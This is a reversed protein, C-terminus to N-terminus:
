IRELIYQEIAQFSAKKVLLAQYKPLKSALLFYPVIKPINWTVVNFLLRRWKLRRSNSLLVRGNYGSKSIISKIQNLQELDSKESAIIITNIDKSGLALIIAASLSSDVNIDLIEAGVQDSIYPQICQLLEFPFVNEALPNKLNIGLVRNTLQSYERFVQDMKIQISATQISPHRLSEKGLIMSKNMVETLSVKDKFEYALTGKKASFFFYSIAQFTDHLELTRFFDRYSEQPFGYIFQTRLFINPNITKLHTIATMVEKVKYNRNMLRLSRNSFSQLPVCLFEIKKFVSPTVKAFLEVFSSPYWYHILFIIKGKSTDYLENLLLAFDTGIDLGYSGCDDAMLVVKQYGDRIGKELDIKLKDKSVSKVMGKTQKISCYSCNHVCGVSINLVLASSYLPNAYDRVLDPDHEM